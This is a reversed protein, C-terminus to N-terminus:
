SSRKKSAAKMEKIEKDLDAEGMAEIKSIDERGVEKAIKVAEARKAELKVDKEAERENKAVEKEVQNAELEAHKEDSRAKAEDVMAKDKLDTLDPERSQEPEKGAKKADAVATDPFGNRTSALVGQQLLEEAERAKLAVEEGLRYSKGGIETVKIVKYIQTM